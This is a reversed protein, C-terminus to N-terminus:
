RKRKKKVVPAKAAVGGQPPTVAYITIHDGPSSSIFYKGDGSFCIPAGVASQNALTAIAGGTTSNWLKVSRDVSCSSAAVKGNPAMAVNCVSDEHQQSGKVAAKTTLNWLIVTGNRGGSIARTGSSDIRLDVAGQSGHAPFKSVKGAANYNWVGAGLTAAWMGGGPVYSASSVNMGESPYHKIPKATAYDWVIIQDDKGTSALFKSDASWSFGQIGRLHSQPSRPMEKVKVGTKLNWIWIRGSEDGTALLTGAKNIAIGYAPQPHGMFTKITAGTAANVYRISNDENSVVFTSGPGPCVAISKTALMENKLALNLGASPGTLTSAVLLSLMM